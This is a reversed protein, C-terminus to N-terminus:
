IKLGNLLIDTMIEAVEENSITENKNERLIFREICYGGVLYHFLQATLKPNVNRYEGVKMGNEIIKIFEKEEENVNSEIFNTVLKHEELSSYLMLRLFSPDKENNEIVQLIFGNLITQFNKGKFKEYINTKSHKKVTTNFIADYIEDKNKFFRFLTAESVGAAIAIDKTRTGQFGKAAFVTRAVNTLQQKREKASLRLKKYM